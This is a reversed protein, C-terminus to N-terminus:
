KPALIRPKVVVIGSETIRESKNTITILSIDTVNYIYSEEGTPHVGVMTGNFVAGVEADEFTPGIFDTALTKGSLEARRKIGDLAADNFIIQVKAM